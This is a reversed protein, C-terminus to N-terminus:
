AGLPSRLTRVECSFHVNEEKQNGFCTLCLILCVAPPFSNERKFILHYYEGSYTEATYLKTDFETNEISPGEKLWHKHVHAHRDPKKGNPVYKLVSYCLKVTLFLGLPQILM